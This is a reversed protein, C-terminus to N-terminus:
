NSRFYERLPIFNFNKQKSYKTIKGDTVEEIVMPENIEKDGLIAKLREEYIKIGNCVSKGKQMYTACVWAIQKKYQVVRILNAGCYACKLLETFQYDKPKRNERIAQAKDWDSKSVIAPHSNETYYKDKQGNNVIQRGDDTIFTKQMLCDGKYKENSIISLIRDSSWPKDTYTPVKEKNLKQAIGYGKMGGLYLEFIKRVIEAKEKNIVVEGNADREYGLVKKISTSAEGNKYRKQISWRINSCVAKREEEAIAGLVTLMLEGDAKLTNIKQEEFIVGVGLEKLERVNKLLMVTNRAFRSISKTIILDIDGARSKQMM